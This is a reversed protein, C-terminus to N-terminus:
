AADFRDELLISGGELALLVQSLGTITAIPSSLFPRDQETYAWTRALNASGVGMTQLTHIVGKSRRTTGSTFVVVRPTAPDPEAWDDVARGLAVDGLPVVTVDHEDVALRARLEDPVVVHRTRSSTVANAVDPAGARRDVVIVVADARITALITAVANRSNPAVVVVPDGPQVGADTLTGVGAEVRERLQAYTWTGDNDIIAIREGDADAIREMGDRLPSQRWWGHLLYEAALQPDTPATVRLPM